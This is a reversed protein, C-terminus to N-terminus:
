TIQEISYRFEQEGPEGAKLCNRSERCLYMEKQAIDLEKGCFRNDDDSVQHRRAFGLKKKYL